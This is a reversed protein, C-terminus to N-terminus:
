RRLGIPFVKDLDCFVNSEERYCGLTPELQGELVLQHVDAQMVTVFQDNAALDLHVLVLRFAQDGADLLILFTNIVVGDIASVVRKTFRLIDNPISRAEEAHHRDSIAAFESNLILTALPKLKNGM